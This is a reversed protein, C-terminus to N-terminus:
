NLARSRQWRQFLLSQVVGLLSLIILASLNTGPENRIQPWIHLLNMFLGMTIFGFANACIIGKLWALNYGSWQLVLAILLASAISLAASAVLGIVIGSPTHIYRPNLFINAGIEWPVSTQVGLFRFLYTISNVLVAGILGALTSHYFLNM